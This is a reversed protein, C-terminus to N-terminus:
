STLWFFITTGFHHLLIINAFYDVSGSFSATFGVVLVKYIEVLTALSEANGNLGPSSTIM